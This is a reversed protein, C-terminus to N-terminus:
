KIYERLYLVVGSTDIKMSVKIARYDRRCNVCICPPKPSIHLYYSVTRLQPNNKFKISEICPVPCKARDAKVKADLESFDINKMLLLSQFCTMSMRPPHFNLYTICWEEDGKRISYTKPDKSDPYCVLDGTRFSDRILYVNSSVWNHKELNLYYLYYEGKLFIPITLDYKCLWDRPLVLTPEGYGNIASNFFYCQIDDKWSYSKAGYFKPLMPHGITVVYEIKKCIATFLDNLFTYEYHEIKKFVYYKLIYEIKRNGLVQNQVRRLFFSSSKNPNTM